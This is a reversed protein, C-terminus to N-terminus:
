KLVMWYCDICRRKSSDLYGLFIYDDFYGADFIFLIGDNTIMIDNM